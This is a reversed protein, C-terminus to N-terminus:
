KHETLARVCVSLCASVCMRECVCARGCVRVDVCVCVCVCMSLCKMTQIKCGSSPSTYRFTKFNAAHLFKYM